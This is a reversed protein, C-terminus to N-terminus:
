ISFNQQNGDTNIVQYIKSRKSIRFDFPVTVPGMKLLGTGPAADCVYNFLAPSIMPLFKILIDRDITSQNLLAFYETNSLIASLNTSNPNNNLMDTMNQTIGTVAGRLKRIEKFLKLAFKAVADIGLLEHFEDIYLHTWNGTAATNKIKNRVTEMMILMAKVRLNEKMSSIDFILFKSNLDVNTKHNFLNLAGNVFIDLAAALKRAQTTNKEMLTQYIDQLTPSYTRIQEENTMTVADDPTFDDNTSNYAFLIDDFETKANEAGNLKCRMAYNQSYVKETAESILGQEEPTIERNLCSSLLTLIFDFKDGIIDQLQAYDVDKFDVDLPNVFINKKQDFSIVQGDIYNLLGSYENQPDVVLITDEPNNIAVSILENKAFMSKGSGAKGLIMGNRNMLKKKNAFIANQSLQNIGYFIGNEDNLEQTKFPMFMALNPSSFNCCAKYEQIGFPFASNIGERQKGFCTKIDLSKVAAVNEMKKTIQDLEEASDALFMVMVTTNFFHDDTGELEMIYEDLQEKPVTLRESVDSLYDKDKRKQRKQNEIKANLDRKKRRAEKILVSLDIIESNVSIYSTCNVNSLDALIGSELSRSFRSIYMVRGFKSNLNFDEARLKVSAPTITNLWDHKEAIETDFNFKFTSKMGAHTFHYLIDMREEISVPQMSSGAMGNVGIAIYASHLAAEIGGFQLKADRADDATVTLTLYITQYLGQKADTLKEKIVKNYDSRLDNYKDKRLRYLIKSNFDQEDVYQNAVTIQFRCPMANYVRSLNIIIQKQEQDTIGAFNVDSLTYMKSWRKDPLEFIGDETISKISFLDQCSGLNSILPKDEIKTLNYKNIIGM